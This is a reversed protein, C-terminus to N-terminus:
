FYWLAAHHSAILFLQVTWFSAGLKEEKLEVTRFNREERKKEKPFSRSKKHLVNNKREREGALRRRRRGRTALYVDIYIYVYCM